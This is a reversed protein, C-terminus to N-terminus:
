AQRSAPASIAVRGGRGLGLARGGAGGVGTEHVHKFAKVEPGKRPAM